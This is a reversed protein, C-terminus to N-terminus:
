GGMASFTQNNGYHGEPLYHSIEKKQLVNQIHNKLVEKQHAEQLLHRLPFNGEGFLCLRLGGDSTVRLRNCTACFDQSYPAIIGIQGRYNPHNFELAPGDGENRPKLKWGSSLLREYLAGSQIHEKRFAEGNLGTRMMEIVRVTIPKVQVWDLFAPLEEEIWNKMLVANVKVQSFGALLASEIGELVDDLVDQGTIEKFKERRLSDVSVNLHSVGAKRLDSALQKLRYGNTSLAVTRIGDIASVARIIAPLDRRLTPEGGTLRVKWTGLEAFAQCLNKIEHLNLYSESGNEKKKYGNPLCYVCRFNCADTISLRLYSFRRGFSDYLRM